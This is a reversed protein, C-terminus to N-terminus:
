LRYVEICERFLALYRGAQQILDYAAAAHERCGSRIEQGSGIEGLAQDILGALGQPSVDATLWGNYRPRLMEPLGGVAFAVVPTGCALAEAVGNPLNDQPASHILLDAANYALAQQTTDAVFGLAHQSLGAPLPLEGAGMTLLTFNKKMLPLAAALLPGGKRPDRLDPTSALVLPGEGTIGLAERAAAREIPRFVDLPLGNSIVEVRHERWLGRRAEAALWASPTVGVIEPLEALVVRREHWSHAVRQPALAPYEDATPCAADCGGEFRRCDGSYVCRATMPWMDHMTWVLPAFEACVKLLSPRWGAGIGGHVNHINILDPRTSALLRRLQVEIQPGASRDFRERPGPPLYRRIARRLTFLSPRLAAGETPFAALRTVRLGHARLGDTLRTAAIAAGGRREWDSIM